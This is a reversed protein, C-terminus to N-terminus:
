RAFPHDAGKTRAKVALAYSDARDDLEGGPALLTGKEISQLQILTEFDHIVCEGEKASEAMGDYMLVKGLATNNWGPRNDHGKLLGGSHGNQEFWQIFAHGHNNREPMVRARNYWVSVQAAYAAHVAPTLKGVLNCVEEGTAKDLWTTASDDSTPLGEACDAGAVYAHGQQPYRFIALGPINPAGDILDDAPIPRMEDYCQNLWASPIRKDLEGPALAEIDTAPYQEHLEDLGGTREFSEQKVREYWEDGRDPHVHWPLFLPFWDNRGAKAAHYTKKFDSNPTNKKSRSILFMKGGNEITPKVAGMLHKQDVVLDFEDAIALTATYSDGSNSPFARAWSGNFLGFVHGSTTEVGLRMWEPLRKHMGKLREKGLLYMAEDDRRSFILVTAVPHFVMRWLAYALALWTLGLQRAKLVVVLRQEVFANLVEDQADWLSFPIWSETKADYIRCYRTIFYHASDACADWESDQPGVRRKAEVWAEQMFQSMAQPSFVSVPAPATM